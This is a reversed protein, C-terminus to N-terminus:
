ADRDPVVLPQRTADQEALMAMARQYDSRSLYGALLGSVLGSEASARREALADEVDPSLHTRDYVSPHFPSVCPPPLQPEVATVAGDRRMRRRWRAVPAPVVPGTAFVVILVALVVVVALAM